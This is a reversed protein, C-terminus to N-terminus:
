LNTSAGNLADFALHVLSAREVGGRLADNLAFAIRRFNVGSVCLTVGSTKLVRKLAIM